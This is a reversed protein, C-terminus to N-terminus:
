LRSNKLFSKEVADTSNLYKTLTEKKLHLDEKKRLSFSHKLKESSFTAIESHYSFNKAKGM